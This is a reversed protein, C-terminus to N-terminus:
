TFEKEKRKAWDPMRFQILYMEEDDQATIKFLNNEIYSALLFSKNLKRSELNEDSNLYITNQFYDEPEEEM